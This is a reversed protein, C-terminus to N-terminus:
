HHVSIHLTELSKLLRELPYGTAIEECTWETHCLNTLWTCRDGRSPEEIHKLDLNGVPAALSSSHVFAPIGAIIAQCGPGSNHNVVAHANALISDFDYDDYTNVIPKAVSTIVGYPLSIRQRPHCRVIIPRDSHDRIQDITDNLWQKM